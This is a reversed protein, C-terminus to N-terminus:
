PTSMRAQGKFNSWVRNDVVRGLVENNLVINVQPRGTPVTATLLATSLPNFRARTTMISKPLPTSPPLGGPEGSDTTPTTAAPTNDQVITAHLNVISASMIASAIVANMNSSVISAMSAVAQMSSTISEVTAAVLETTPTTIKLSTTSLTEKMITPLYTEFGKFEPQATSPTEKIITPLYTEFGKFEPQATSLTEKIITPLYTEFGKFLASEEQNMVTMTGVTMQDVAGPLKMWDSQQAPLAPTPELLSRPLNTEAPKRSYFLSQIPVWMTAGEPVNWMGSLVDTQDETAETLARLALMLAENSAWLRLFTDNAGLVLQPQAEQPYGMRSLFATYYAIWQQLLGGQTSLDLSTTQLNPQLAQTKLVQTNESIARQLAPLFVNLMQIHRTNEDYVMVQQMNSEIWNAFEPGLASFARIWQQMDRMVESMSVGKPIETMQPWAPLERVGGGWPAPTYTAKEQPVQPVQTAYTPWGGASARTGYSPLGPGESILDWLQFGSDVGLGIGLWKFFGGSDAITKLIGGTILNELGGIAETALQLFSSWAKTSGFSQLLRDWASALADTKATVTDMAIGFANSWEMPTDMSGSMAQIFMDWSMMVREIQQRQGRGVNGFLAAFQELSIENTKIKQNMEDLVSIINRREIDGTPLVRTTQIGLEQQTKPEYLRSLNRVLYDLEKGEAGTVQQLAGFMSYMETMSMNFEQSLPAADRLMTIFQSMPLTTLRWGSAMASLIKVTNEGEFGFQRQQAILWQMQDQMNGGAVRQLEAAYRLTAADAAVPAVQAIKVPSIGTYQSAAMIRQEYVALSEGSAGTRMEFEALSQNIESQVQYWEKLSNTIVNIAGWVLLGQGIWTLHRLFRQGLVDYADTVRNLGTIQTEMHKVGDAATWMTQTMRGVETGASDAYIKTRRLGDPLNGLEETYEKLRLKGQQFQEHVYTLKDTNASSATGTMAMTTALKSQEAEYAQVAQQSSRIAQEQQQIATTAITPQATPAAATAGGRMATEIRAQAEVIQQEYTRLNAIFQQFKEGTAQMGAEAFEFLYRTTRVDETM